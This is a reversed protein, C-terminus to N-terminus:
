RTAGIGLNETALWREISEKLREADRKTLITAAERRHMDRV